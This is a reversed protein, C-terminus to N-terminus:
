AMSVAVAACIAPMRGPVETWTVVGFFATLPSPTTSATRGCVEGPDVLKVTFVRM